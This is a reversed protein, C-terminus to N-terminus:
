NSLDPNLIELIELGLDEIFCSYIHYLIPEDIPCMPVHLIIQSQFEAKISDYLYVKDSDLSTLIPLIHPRQNKKIQYNLNKILNMIKKISGKEYQEVSNDVVDSLSYLYEKYIDNKNLAKLYIDKEIDIYPAKM